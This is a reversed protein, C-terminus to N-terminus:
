RPPWPPTTSLPPVAPCGARDAWRRRYAHLGFPEARALPAAALACRRRRTARTDPRSQHVVLHGTTMTCHTTTPEHHAVSADAIQTHGAPTALAGNPCSLVKYVNGRPLLLLRARASEEKKKGPNSLQTAGRSPHHPKNRAPPPPCSQHVWLRMPLMMRGGAPAATRSSSTRAPPPRVAACWASACWASRVKRSACRLRHWTYGTVM